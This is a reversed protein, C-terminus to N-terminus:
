LKQAAIWRDIDQELVQLPVRGAGLVRNHFEALSFRAGLAARAKERLEIIKLEGIMYSTAQGPQSVYRDVETETGLGPLPGLYDIAQARTWKKAHLGTDIVLRRARFLEMQLQGLLGAPDGDYWGQEAALHEAYLGWGEGIASNNGFVRDRLFKPLSTDEAQLAGQFHHGPVAEHYATTRLGFRTMTVGTVAYQYVGPRTGDVTGLSYSAARGRMFDPYARAIVAMKPVRAFLSAARREADRIIETIVMNYQARGAPSDPFSQQSASARDMRQRFTGDTYGLQRLIADMRGEIDAVVKL